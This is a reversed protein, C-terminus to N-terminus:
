ARHLRPRPWSIRARGVPVIPRICQQFSPHRRIWDRRSGSPLDLRIATWKRRFPDADGHGRPRPPDLWRSAAKKQRTCRWIPTALNVEGVQAAMAEGSRRWPLSQWRRTLPRKPGLRRVTARSSQVARGTRVARAGIGSPLTRRAAVGQAALGGNAAQFHPAGGADM